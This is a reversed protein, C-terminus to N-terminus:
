PLVGRGWCSSRSQSLSNRKRQREGEGIDTVLLCWEAQDRGSDLLFFSSDAGWVAALKSSTLNWQVGLHPQFGDEKHM